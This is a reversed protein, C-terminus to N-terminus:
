TAWGCESWDNYLSWKLNTFGGRTGIIYGSGGMCNFYRKRCSNYLTTRAKMKAELKGRLTYYEWGIFDCM